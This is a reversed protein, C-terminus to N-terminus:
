NSSKIQKDLIISNSTIIIQGLKDEFEYINNSQLQTIKWGFSGIM